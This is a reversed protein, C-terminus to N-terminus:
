LLNYLVYLMGPSGLLAAFSSYVVFHELQINKTLNHLNWTGEVKPLFTTQFTPWTQNPFFNDAIVGAVHMVGRLPKMKNAIWDVTARCHEYDSIDGLRVVINNGDRVLTDISSLVEPKPPSRGTLVVNTAGNHIM